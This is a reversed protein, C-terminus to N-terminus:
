MMLMIVLKVVRSVSTPPVSVTVKVPTTVLRLKRSAMLRVGPAPGTHSSFKSMDKVPAVLNIAIPFTNFLIMVPFSAALPIVPPAPFSRRKPLAPLSM